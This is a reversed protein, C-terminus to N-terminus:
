DEETHGTGDCPTGTLGANRIMKMINADCEALPVFVQTRGLLSLGLYGRIHLQGGRVRATSTWTDGSSPIYVRGRWVGKRFAYDELIQLGILPTNRRSAEPNALDTKPQGVEGMRDKERWRPNKLAIIRASLGEGAPGVEIMTGASAWIGFVSERDPDSLDDAQALAALILMIAVTGARVAMRLAHKTDVM